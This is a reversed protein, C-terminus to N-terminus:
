VNPRHVVLLEHTLPLCFNNIITLRYEASWEVMYLRSKDTRAAPKHGQFHDFVGHRAQGPSWCFKM